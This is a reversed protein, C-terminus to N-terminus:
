PKLMKKAKDLINEATFGFKELVLGGPASAGFRDIGMVVGEQGVYRHWGHSAGAEISLRKKIDPPLVEQKYEGSQGEFLEWSPMSVLRARVGESVLGEYAKLALHVESGTAILILEPDETGALVYAGRQLGDAPSYKGRDLVPLKQRTFILAVPGGKHLLAAKWAEATENADAPRIVTLNPMARLSSVHEVPQHTPGDEGLGVSDHTFVYIVRLKTLAALRIAPRMYDSFVLFTAGYPILGGHVAIGNLLSGMAHERVGFAMNAGEFGWTGPAAGQVSEDGTGPPQFSGKGKLVTNTSPDLDASGGMLNPVNLANMVKGGASRTAIGKPDPEFVPVDRDWGEPLEHNVMQEWQRMLEPHKKGYSKMLAKWDEEHGASRGAVERFRAKAEEPIYFAEEPPWGFRKKTEIVEEPKLPSGHVGFTDQKPSGYGIHTSVIILSPRDDERATRIANEIADLDNGDTVHQVHWGYAEFRRGVDETFTLRTEGALSIHNSDYLYVIKGLSLHGALSAAESAVGEMLDGDSVIAYTYHDVVKYGPRNFRVGLHAEAAAMGVGNAFGQGLPGTTTEVGCEPEYEPHGPTKSGWQRFNMLEEMSLDYGMLHLISYLLASGHGASLIFRDRDPWAPNGSNFRMFRSWLVYAMPAAGLPLGPHGSNARQVADLSLMRLTNICLEDVAQAKM